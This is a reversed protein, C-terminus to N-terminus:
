GLWTHFRRDRRLQQHQGGAHQQDRQLDALFSEELGPGAVDRLQRLNKVCHARQWQVSEWEATTVQSWGPFRRWDPEALEARRYVYPQSVM